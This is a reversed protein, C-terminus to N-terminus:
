FRNCFGFLLLFCRRQWLRFRFIRHLTGIVEQLFIMAMKVIHFRDSRVRGALKDARLRPILHSYHHEIM